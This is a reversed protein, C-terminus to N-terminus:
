LPLISETSSSSDKKGFSNASGKARVASKGVPIKAHVKVYCHIDTWISLSEKGWSQGEGPKERWSITTSENTKPKAITPKIKNSLFFLYYYYYFFSGERWGWGFGSALFLAPLKHDKIAHPLFFISFQTELTLWQSSSLSTTLYNSKGVFHQLRGFLPSHRKPTTHALSWSPFRQQPLALQSHDWGGNGFGLGHCWCPQCPLAFLLTETDQSCAGKPVAGMHPLPHCILLHIFFVNEWTFLM